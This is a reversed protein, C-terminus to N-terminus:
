DFSLIQHLHDVYRLVTMSEANQSSSNIVLFLTFTTLLLLCSGLLFAVRSIYHTRPFAFYVDAKTKLPINNHEEDSEDQTDISSTYQPGPQTTESSRHFAVPVPAVLDVLPGIALRALTNSLSLVQVQRSITTGAAFTEASHLLFTISQVSPTRLSLFISSLNAIVM